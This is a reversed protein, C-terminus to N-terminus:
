VEDKCVMSYRIGRPSKGRKCSWNETGTKNCFHRPEGPFEMILYASNKVMYWGKNEANNDKPGFYIAEGESGENFEGSFRTEADLSLNSCYMTAEAAMAGMLFVSSVLIKAIM